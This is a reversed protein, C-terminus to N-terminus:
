DAGRDTKRLAAVAEADIVTSVPVGWQQALSRRAKDIQEWSFGYLKMPDTQGTM